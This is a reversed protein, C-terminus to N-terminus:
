EQLFSTDSGPVKITILTWPGTATVAVIYSIGAQLLHSTGTPEMCSLHRSADQERHSPTADEVDLQVMMESGWSCMVVVRWPHEFRLTGILITGQGTWAWAPSSVPLGDSPVAHSQSVMAIVLAVLILTCEAKRVRRPVRM